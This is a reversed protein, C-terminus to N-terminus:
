LEDCSIVDWSMVAGSRVGSRWVEGVDSIVDSSM